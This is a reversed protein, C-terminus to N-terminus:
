KRNASALAVDFIRRAIRENAVHNVHCFDLYYEQRPQRKDLVDTLDFCAVGEAAVAALAQRLGPYGAAFARDLGPAEKLDNRKVRLEYASLQGLTFLNPQLCHVFRGGRETVSRQAERLTHRFSEEAQDLRGTWRDWDNAPGAPRGEITRMLLQAVASIRHFRFCLPYAQRQLWTLQRVGGEPGNGPMPGHPNGHYVPYFIDNVGDYYIVLDQPHVPTQRLRETQQRAIMACAGYNEVRWPSEAQQNLLRQLCSAVTWRDPVERNFLTSGGFLLVRRTCCTPQDTTARQGDQVNIYRGHFDGPVFFHAGAPTAARVCQMSEALFEQGFYDGEQYPVPRSARFPWRSVFHDPAVRSLYIRSVVELLLCSLALKLMVALSRM